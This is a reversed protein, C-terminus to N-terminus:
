LCVRSYKKSSLVYQTGINSTSDNENGKMEQTGIQQRHHLSPNKKAKASEIRKARRITPLRNPLSVVFPPVSLLRYLVHVPLLPYQLYIDVVLAIRRLAQM